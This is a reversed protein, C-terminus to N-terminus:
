TLSNVSRGLGYLLSFYRKGTRFTKSIRIVDKISHVGVTPRLLLLSKLMRSNQYKM